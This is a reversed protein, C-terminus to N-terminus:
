SSFCKVWFIWSALFDINWMECYMGLMVCELTFAKTTWYRKREWQKIDVPEDASEKDLNKYM